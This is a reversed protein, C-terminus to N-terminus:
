GRSTREGGVRLAWAIFGLQLPLRLWLATASPQPLWAPLGAVPVEPHLAMNINAPFVAVFLAVLGYAALRRTREDLLMLGLVAEFVGSIWVLPLHWPLYSPMISAFSEANTFHLVGMSVMVIALAYRGLLSGRTEYKM